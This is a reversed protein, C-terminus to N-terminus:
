ALWGNGYNSTFDVQTVLDNFDGDGGGYLDEWGFTNLGYQWLHGVPQGAVSENAQAFGWFTKGSSQNTLVQAILDGADVDLLASEGYNGFGPGVISPGGTTTQYARAQAAAAYGADGPHLNGIAGSYDDVRYFTVAVNDAGVQRLRVIATQDDGGGATEAVMVPRAVRVAGQSTMFDAFGFDNTLTAQPAQAVVGNISVALSEGTGLKVESLTGQGQQDFLTVLGPAFDSQLSQQAMRSTWAYAATGESTFGSSHSGEAVGVAVDVGSMTQVMLTQISGSTWGATNSGNLVDPVDDFYFQEHAIATLSRALLVGNPSGLGSVLDYGPGAYYGYGTPTIGGFNAGGESYSSINNGQTIDNFSAPAVAAALYLLDNMFGLAPLGQDKFIFNIQAILSAWLPAAASTGSEGSLGVMNGGPTSYWQNGGAMAAVDPAGRGAQGPGAATAVTTPALGFAAQYWPTPQTTDVGGAGAWNGKDYAHGELFKQESTVAYHNWAVEVIWSGNASATPLSTLGGAILQWLTQPDGALALAMLTALTQDQNAQALTSLSSGGVLLSYPSTDNFHLNTIGNGIKGGSGGDGLATVMTLNNLAADVYLEQYATYFPSGPAMAQPDNWSSSTVDPNYTTDWIASQLATFITASPIAGVYSTDAGSGNYLALNSNPNIAGVLGVDLSREDVGADWTSQGLNGQVLVTGTGSTGMLTRYDTLRDQFLSTTGYPDAPLYTGTGPEILGIVGTEVAQGDLPFNYLGAVTLPNLDVPVASNGLSQAGTTPAFSVGPVMNTAKPITDFDFWLGSINAGFPVSLTGNWYFLDKSSSYMLTNGFLTTFQEPTTITVWITRSELSTVYYGQNNSNASDLITFGNDTLDQYLQQYQLPDAGYTASIGASGLQQLAQQRSAWDGSLLVTPQQVRDLMLAVNIGGDGDGVVFPNDGTFGYAEGVTQEPNAVGYGGFNLFTSLSTNFATM